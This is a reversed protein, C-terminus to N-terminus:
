KQLVKVSLRRNKARGEETTNEAIGYRPGYGRADIRSPSIGMEVLSAWATRARAESLQKNVKYTGTSDTYGGLKVRANPFAKLIAAVNRLQSLSEGALTAKGPTFFVRDFNYWGNTLDLTDVQMQPNTLFRYLNSETSNVGVGAITGGGPLKLTTPLGTEYIYNGSKADFHGPVIPDKVTRSTPRYTGRAPYRSNRRYAPASAPVPAPATGSAAVTTSAAAPMPAPAPMPVPMRAPVASPMAKMGNGSVPAAAGPGSPAASAVPASASQPASGTYQPQNPSVTILVPGGVVAEKALTISTGNADNDLANNTGGPTRNNRGKGNDGDLKSLVVTFNATKGAELFINEVTQPRYGGEGVRIVYPGGVMLNPVMFRGSGDSAAAHRVGSPMHIVTVAAGPLARRDDSQVNGMLSLTTVQAQAASVFAVQLLLLSFISLKM